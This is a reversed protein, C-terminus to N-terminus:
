EQQRLCVAQGGQAEASCVFENHFPVPNGKAVKTPFTTNTSSHRLSPAPFPVGGPVPTFLLTPKM